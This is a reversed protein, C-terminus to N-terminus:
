FMRRLDELTNNKHPRPVWGSHKKSMGLPDTFRKLSFFPVMIFYIVTMIVKTQFRGIAAAKKKWGEWFRKFFGNKKKKM